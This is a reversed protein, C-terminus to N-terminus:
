SNKIGNFLLDILIHVRDSNFAFINEIYLDMLLSRTACTIVSAIAEIDMEDFTRFEGNTIGLRILESILQVEQTDFEARIRSILDPKESIEGRVIDYLAAIKKVEDLLTALYVRLKNGASTEAEVKSRSTAILEGISQVMVTYFIDEKSKYYYYLSSKGKGAARAIDEMTSKNLGWKQFVMAAADIIAAKVKEDKEIKM